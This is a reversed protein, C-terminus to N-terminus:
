LKLLLLKIKKQEQNKKFFTFTISQVKSILDDKFSLISAIRSSDSVATLSPLVQKINDSLFIELRFALMGLM